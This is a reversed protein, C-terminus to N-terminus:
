ITRRAMRRGFAMLADGDIRWQRRFRFAWAPAGKLERQITRVSVGVLAASQKITLLPAAHPVGSTHASLSAASSFAAANPGQKLLHIRELDSAAPKNLGREPPASAIKREPPRMRANYAGDIGCGFINERTM